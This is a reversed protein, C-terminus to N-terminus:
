IEKKGVAQGMPRGAAADNTPQEEQPNACPRLDERRPLGAGYYPRTELPGDLGRELAADYQDAGWEGHNFAGRFKADRPMPRGTHDGRPDLVQVRETNEFMSDMRDRGNIGEVLDANKDFEAETTGVNRERQEYDTMPIRMAM